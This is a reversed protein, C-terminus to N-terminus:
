ADDGNTGDVTLPSAVLNIFPTLNAFTVEQLIAGYFQIDTGQGAAPGPTYTDSSAATTGQLVLTNNGAGGDFFIGGALAVAATSNDGTFTDDGLGGLVAITNVNSTPAVDLPVWQVGTLQTLRVGSTTGILHTAVISDRSTSGIFNVGLVNGGKTL